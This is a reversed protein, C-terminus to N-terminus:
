IEQPGHEGWINGDVDVAEVIKRTSIVGCGTKLEPREESYRINNPHKLPVEFEFYEFSILKKELSGGQPGEAERSLLCELAM